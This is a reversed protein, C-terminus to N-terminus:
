SEVITPKLPAAPAQPAPPAPEQPPAAAAVEAEADHLREKLEEVGGMVTTWVTVGARMIARQAKENTLLYAAAAGVVLGKVLSDANPHRHTNAFGPWAPGAGARGGRAEAAGQVYPNQGYPGQGYPGPGYYYHHHWAGQRMPDDAM